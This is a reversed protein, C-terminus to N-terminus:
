YKKTPVNKLMKELEPNSSSGESDLLQALQSLTQSSIHKDPLVAKAIQVKQAVNAYKEPTRKWMYVKPRFFYMIGFILFSGASQGYPKYFAM